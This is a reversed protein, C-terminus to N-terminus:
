VQYSSYEEYGILENYTIIIFFYLPKKIIEKSGNLFINFSLPIVVYKKLFLHPFFLKSLLVICLSIDSLDTDVLVRLEKHLIKFQSIESTIFNMGSSSSKSTLYNLSIGTTFIVIYVLNPFQFLHGIKEMYIPPSRLSGAAGPSQTVSPSLSRPPLM